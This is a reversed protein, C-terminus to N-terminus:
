FKGVVNLMLGRGEYDIDSADGSVDGWEYGLGVKVNEGVHRYVGAQVGTQTLDAERTKLVRGEASIDWVHTMHYDFRLAGLVATNDTFVRDDREAIQSQRYGLKGGVSWRENLDYIGNLSLVHSVQLPGETTGDAGIQDVGPLDRKYTYRALMNFRENDVPRFAYGLSGRVYEGDEFDGTKADSKFAEVDVLLTGQDNFTQEYGFSLGRTDRDKSDGEGDERGLEIRARVSRNEETYSAGFSLAQRDFDGTAEEVEGIEVTGSVTWVASPTYTVGFTQTLSNRDGPRDLLVEGYTNVQENVQRRGGVVLVGKDRLQSGAGVRTPDLTYGLYYEDEATPRYSLRALAGLGDDGGSVEGSLSVKDSLAAEGGIGLRNDRELGNRRVAAKGFAYVTLDDSPAYSVRLGLDDRQGTENPEGPTTKDVTGYALEVRWLDSVDYGLGIQGERKTKGSDSEFDEYGLILDLRESLAVEADIGALTQDADVIGGSGAFGAQKTEYRLNVQGEPGGFDELNLDAQFRVADARQSGGAKTGISLGGNLSQSLTPSAGETQAVELVATSNAGLKLLLDASRIEFDEDSVEERTTGIGFRLNDTVWVQAQGGLALADSVGARPTYEYQALLQVDQQDALVGVGTIRSSNLPEALVVVGQFHDVTYDVGEVLTRESSVFGTDRDVVQVTLQTSGIDLDKRTLFYVSGGTGRLLDRQLATEPQAAYATVAVRPDGNSTVSPASYVLEAGYLARSHNILGPTRIGGRVDGFTFRTTDNEARLYVRGSTPTDDFTESNDGYTPYVDGDERMRQLVRNPDREQLRRFINDLPGNGTDASATIRWGGKTRGSVYGALRGEVREGNRAKEWGTIDVLGVGFWEQSPVEVDRLVRRSGSRVEIVQDGAPLIRTVAFRGSADVSVTEGMVVVPGRANSGTVRVVGGNVPIGRRRTRDEGEGAAVIPETVAHGSTHRQTRLLVLPQTEDYRGRPDYVRLAYSLEGSGDSPMAWAAQGNPEVPVRAVVPHGLRSRDRVLVEAREIYAPYNSSARFVVREGVGYSGRLDTTSVNLLRSDAFGDYAVDVELPPVRPRIVPDSIRRPPPPAGAVVQNDISISFGDPGIPVNRLTEAFGYSAVCLATASVMMRRMMM